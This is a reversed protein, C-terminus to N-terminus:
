SEVLQRALAQRVCESPTSGLQKARTEALKWLADPVRITQPTM